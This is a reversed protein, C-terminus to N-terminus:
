QACPPSMQRERTEEHKRGKRYPIRYDRVLKRFLSNLDEESFSPSMCLGIGVCNDLLRGPRTPSTTGIHSFRKWDTWERYPRYGISDTGTCDGAAANGSHIWHYIGEQRWRIYSVWTGCNLRNVATDALDSHLDINVLRRAGSCDVHVRLQQHNMVALTSIGKRSAIDFLRCLYARAREIRQPVYTWFDMDVSVYTPTCTMPRRCNRTADHVAPLSASM